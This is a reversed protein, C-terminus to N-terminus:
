IKPQLSKVLGPLDAHAKSWINYIKEGVIPWKEVTAPPAPIKLTNQQVAETFHRVDDAFSNMLLATPTVILLAGLIVLITSAFGQRGGIRHAFWQHIPYMTIALIISSVMLTLFPSIVQYCLVALAGILGARILLDPLGPSARRVSDPDPQTPPNM